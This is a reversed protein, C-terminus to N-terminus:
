MVFDCAQLRIPLGLDQVTSNAFVLFAESHSLDKEGNPPTYDPSLVLTIHEVGTNSPYQKWTM